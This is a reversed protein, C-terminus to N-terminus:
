DLMEDYDIDRAKGNGHIARGEAINGMKVDLRTLELNVRRMETAYPNPLQKKNIMIYPMPDKNWLERNRVWMSWLECYRELAMLDSDFLIPTDRTNDLAVLEKWKKKAVDSLAKPCKLRRSKVTIEMEAAARKRLIDTDGKYKSQDIQSAGIPTRGAMSVGKEFISRLDDIKLRKEKVLKIKNIKQLKKEDNIPNKRM